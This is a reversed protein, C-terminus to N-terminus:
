LFWEKIHYWAICAITWWIAVLAVLLYAMAWRGAKEGETM